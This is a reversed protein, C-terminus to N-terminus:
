NIISINICFLVRTCQTVYEFHNKVLKHALHSCTLILVSQSSLIQMECSLPAAWKCFSIPMYVICPLLNEIPTTCFVSNGHCLKAKANFKHHLPLYINMSKFLRQFPLRFREVVFEGEILHIWDGKSKWHLCSEWFQNQRRRFSINPDFMTKWANVNALNWPLHQFGLGSAATKLVERPVKRFNICQFFM